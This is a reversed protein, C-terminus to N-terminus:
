KVFRKQIWTLSKINGMTKGVKEDILKLGDYKIETEELGFFTLDRIHAAIKQEKVTEPRLEWGVVEGKKEILHIM